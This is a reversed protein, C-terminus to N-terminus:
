RTANVVSFCWASPAPRIIKVKLVNNMKTLIIENHKPVMWRPSHYVPTDDILEFLHRFPVDAPRLDQMSKAVSNSEMMIVEVAKTFNRPLNDLKQCLEQCLDVGHDIQSVYELLGKVCESSSQITLVLENNTVNNDNCHQASEEEESNSTFDESDTHEDYQRPQSLLYVMQLLAQVGNQHLRVEKSRFDLVGGHRKLTPRGTVVDFPVDKLVVVEIRAKIEGFLVAVRFVKGIVKSISGNADTVLKNKRESNLKLREALYLSVFNPTAGTDLLAYTERGYIKVLTVALCKDKKM